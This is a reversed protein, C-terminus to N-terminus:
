LNVCLMNNEGMEKMKPNGERKQMKSGQGKRRKQLLPTIPRTRIKPLFSGQYRFIYKQIERQNAINRNMMQNLLTDINGELTKKKDINTDLKADMLGSVTQEYQDLKTEIKRIKKAHM